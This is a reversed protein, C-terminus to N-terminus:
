NRTITEDLNLVLNAILTWAALEPEPLGPKPASEGNHIVKKAAEPQAEYKALHKAFAEAVVAIEADSPSRALVTRWAFAIREAATAGGDSMLREALGRAAEFHQVDNMLQLAQLPTNSRERRTCFQERSPGDFSVMFPPPATRKLFTYLSRRYLADGHDQSYASTNSGVFGVPEWINPPQYPKVGKGGMKLKILGSTFLANDRLEEADLRLRPGRALLRNEPDVRWLDPTVQSSQRFTASTVMLRVLAKVDWGSERFNVALWDILESHSPPQGQSGFDGSTKVLGTGFFQQWFRNVTVRATLPNADAVLWRALDLRTPNQINALPPFAAPVNRSVLEGPKDYQGRLMVNAQRPQPLDRMIFSAPLAANLDDRQKKLSAIEAHIPDLKPKTEACIYALFHDRLVKQQDPTREAAPKKFIEQVNAPLDKAPAASLWATLSRRPDVAPDSRGTVGIKDWTVTGDFQTCAIGTIKDGAQLGLKAAEVEVRVWKGAEPLAGMNMREPTNPAGWQIADFDGWVARHLWGGKFFQLMITKPLDDAELFVHGFIKGGPPIELAPTTSEVVDQALGKAKRRLARQGSFVRGNEAAVWQVPEGPSAKFEGGTPATDEVWVTEMEQVPPRPQVDAPDTYVVTQLQEGLSKEAGAIRAGFEDLRARQEPSVIQATPATLLVNGDLAPDAASYFFAYLSYFEKQSIPDFKHDHCVACGATLGMWTEVTTATRDVAYRFIWEADISGGEGTTVNCRNFGTAILQEQTANPLLDGALQDITFENFPVNRNFAGVVWDRYQWMSRENDLHMGHTDGYRAVDLWHKAMQEGFHPSAMYRDAMKEFAEPSTDALFEDVERVTPPLGTLAFAARRVLTERDAEPSPALGKVALKARIFADIPNRTDAAPVAPKEPAIFAWHGKFEAGQKVWERLTEIEEPKLKKNAKPPPMTEDKESSTIRAIVDSEEPKGPVVPFVDDIKAFLGDRTDLRLDAKRKNKDPGHCQFCNDSLIPRVDRNFDIKREGARVPLAFSFALAIVNAVANCRQNHRPPPFTM